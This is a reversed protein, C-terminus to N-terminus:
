ELQGVLEKYAGTSGEIKESGFALAKYRKIVDMLGTLHDAHPHTLIM